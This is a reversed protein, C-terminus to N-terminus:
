GRSATAPPFLGFNPFLVALPLGVILGMSVPGFTRSDYPELERQGEGAEEDSRGELWCYGEQIYVHYANRGDQVRVWEKGCRKIQLVLHRKPNLPDCVLVLDGQQLEGNHIRPSMKNAIVWSRAAESGVSRTPPSGLFTDGSVAKVGVIMDNVFVLAPVFVLGRLMGLRLSQSM